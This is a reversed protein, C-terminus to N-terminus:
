AHVIPEGLAKAEGDLVVAPANAKKVVNSV